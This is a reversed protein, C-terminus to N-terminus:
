SPKLYEIARKLIAEDEGLMGIGNNCYNCLWARFKLTKHDHDLHLRRGSKLCIPCVYDEGPKPNDKKLYYRVTVEAKHCNYCIPKYFKKGSKPSSGSVVRTNEDLVVNCKKCKKM